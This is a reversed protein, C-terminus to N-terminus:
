ADYGNLVANVIGDAANVSNTLDAGIQSIGTDLGGGDLVTAPLNLTDTILNSEGSPAASTTGTTGLGLTEGTYTISHIIDSTGTEHSLTELESHFDMVVANEAYVLFNFREDTATM